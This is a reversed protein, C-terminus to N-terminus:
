IRVSECGYGISATQKGGIRGVSSYCGGGKFILIYDKERTQPHLQKFKICTEEEWKRMGSWVIVQWKPDSDRFVFPVTHNAWRYSKGAISKRKKRLTTGDFFLFFLFYPLLLFFSKSIRQQFAGIVDLMQDETM